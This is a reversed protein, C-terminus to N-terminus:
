IVQEHLLAGGPQLKTYLMEGPGIAASFEPNFILNKIYSINGIIATEIKINAYALVTSGQAM